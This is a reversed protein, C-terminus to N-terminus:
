PAPSRLGVMRVLEEFRPDGRLPDFIPEVRLTVLSTSRERYARQLAAIARDVDSMGAYVVGLMLATEAGAPAAELRRAAARAAEARGQRGNLYGHAAITWPEHPPWRGIEAFGESFQGAQAYAYAIMKARPFGPQADLVGRLEAIARPYQRSFYLIAGHDAAIILSLPDLQRSRASATEAETFRGQFALLEAYWHHVTAYNPNLQAARIYEQEATRWDWDYSLAILGLSTHAEALTDDIQLARLAASRAKPILDVAPGFGYNTTLVYADALGAHARAYGPDRAIASEFCAIAEALADRTRKGLYYRGKLYLDYAELADPTLLPGHEAAALPPRVLSRSIAASVDRAIDAQVALLNSLERDYQRSWVHSQDRVRVLQATIRVLPPDRRVSGELVYEVGLERHIHTLPSPRDKYRMVSTRAIVGLRAPDVNGVRSIMEETLGDAFYDQAADGTLNAFPLVAVLTKGAVPAAAPEGRGWRLAMGGSITLALVGVAALATRRGTWSRPSPAPPPPAAIPIVRVDAVFRYGRGAITAIFRHNPGADGLAKRLVFVAQTLNAETVHTDPWVARLLDDKLVLQGHHTVLELLVDVVKPTLGIADAGRLLERNPADLRFPGFEYVGANM